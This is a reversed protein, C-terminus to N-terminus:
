KRGKSKRRQDVKTRLESMTVVRGEEADALGKQVSDMFLEKERMLDYEAPSILVGAPKGNQTIVIPQGSKRVKELWQASQSKFEGIPVIDESFKVAKM